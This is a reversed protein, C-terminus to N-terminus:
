SKKAAATWWGEIAKFSFEKWLCGDADISEGDALKDLDPVPLDSCSVKYKEGQESTLRELKLVPEFGKNASSKLFDDMSMDNQRAHRMAEIAIDRYSRPRKRPKGRSKISQDESRLAGLEAMQSELSLVKKFAGDEIREHTKDIVHKLDHPRKAIREDFLRSQEDWFEANRKNIDVPTPKKPM